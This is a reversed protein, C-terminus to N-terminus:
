QGFWVGLMSTGNLLMHVVLSPLIRHTKQYLYGLVLALFFLPIPAPGHGVHFVAFLGSSILIPAAVLRDPALGTREGTAREHSTAAPSAYPNSGPPTEPPQPVNQENGRSLNMAIQVGHTLKELWGQLVVRFLFEEVLPAVLVASAVSWFLMPPTPHDRVLQVLPHLASDDFYQQYVLVLVYQLAYVPPAIVLFARIGLRIDGLVHGASWGLDSLRASLDIRIFAVVLLAAVVALMSGTALRWIVIQVNDNPIETLSPLDFRWATVVVSMGPVIVYVFFALAVHVGRWPVDYRPSASLLEQGQAVRMLIQAW